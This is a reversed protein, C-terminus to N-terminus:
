LLKHELTFAAVQWLDLLTILFILFIVLNVLHDKTHRIPQLYLKLGHLGFAAFYALAFTTLIIFHSPALVGILGLLAILKHRNAQWILGIVALASSIIGVYSGFHDWTYGPVKQSDPIQNPDLFIDRPHAIQDPVTPSPTWSGFFLIIIAALVIVPLLQRRRSSILLPLLAVLAYYERGALVHLPLWTTFAFIHGGLLAPLLPIKRERLLMTMSALALAAYIFTVLPVSGHMLAPAIFLISSGLVYLPLTATASRILLLAALIILLGGLQLALYPRWLYYVQYAAPADQIQGNILFSVNDTSFTDDPQRQQLRLSKSLTPPVSIDVTIQDGHNVALPSAFHVQTFNEGDIVAIPINHEVLLQNGKSIRLTVDDHPINDVVPVFYLGLRTISSRTAIFKQQYTSESDLVISSAVGPTTTLTIFLRDSEVSLLLSGIVVLIVVLFFRSKNSLNKM